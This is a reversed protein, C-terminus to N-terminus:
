GLEVTIVHQGSSTVGVKCQAALQKAFNGLLGLAIPQLNPWEGSSRETKKQLTVVVRLQGHSAYGTFHVSAPSVNMARLEQQCITQMLHTLALQKDLEVLPDDDLEVQCQVTRGLQLADSELKTAVWRCIESLTAKKKGALFRLNESINDQLMALRLKAQHNDKAAGLLKNALDEPITPNSRILLELDQYIAYIQETCANVEQAIDTLKILQSEVSGALAVGHAARGRAAQVRLDQMLQGLWSRLSVGLWWQLCLSTLSGLGITWNPSVYLCSGLLPSIAAAALWWPSSKRWTIFLLAFHLPVLWATILPHSLPWIASGLLAALWYAFPSFGVVPSLAILLTPGLWLGSVGSPWIANELLGAALTLGGIAWLRPKAVSVM